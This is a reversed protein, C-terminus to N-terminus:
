FKNKGVHFGVTSRGCKMIKAIQKQTLGDKYLKKMEKIKEKTLKAKKKM